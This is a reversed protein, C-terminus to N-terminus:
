DNEVEKNKEQLQKKLKIINYVAVTAFVGAVFGMFVMIILDGVTGKVLFDKALWDWM